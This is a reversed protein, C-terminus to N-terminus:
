PQDNEANLFRAGIAQQNAGVVSVCAGPARGERVLDSAIVCQWASSAAFSEGVITKPSLRRGPWDLRVSDATESDCLVENATGHGLQSRMRGAAATRNQSTTFPFSDTVASLVTRAGPHMKLYVAGAGAAYVTSRRFLRAADAVIWDLEEAGVVLCGDARGSELWGAALALAQLFSGDDGVLTYNISSSNLCAALHSAPANFVTEAFFLPSATSPEQLVEAYFRRSYTVGGAMTCVIIGLRLAGTQVSAVDPGLAELAAAMVHQSMIGARRLRPHALFEMRTPSPPVPRVPLKKEWGPRECLQVPLPLNKELAARLAPVGWGAPSVAGIGHIFVASM